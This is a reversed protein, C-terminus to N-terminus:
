RFTALSVCEVPGAEHFGWTVYTEAEFLRKWLQRHPKAEADITPADPCPAWHPRADLHSGNPFVRKGNADLKVVYDFFIDQTQTWQRIRVVDDDTYASPPIKYMYSEGSDFMRM